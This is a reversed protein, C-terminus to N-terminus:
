AEDDGGIWSSVAGWLRGGMSGTRSIEQETDAYIEGLPVSSEEEVGPPLPVERCFETPGAALDELERGEMAGDGDVVVGGFVYPDSRDVKM